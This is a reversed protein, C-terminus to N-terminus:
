YLGGKTEWSKGEKLLHYHEAQINVWEVRVYATNGFFVM